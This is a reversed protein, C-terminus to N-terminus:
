VAQLFFIMALFFAGALVAAALTKHPASIPMFELWLLRMGGFIHAALLFVLGTEALKVLPLETLTLFGDLAAAGEIALGLVWLHLPLFLALGLGSLRHLMYAVWLRDGRM